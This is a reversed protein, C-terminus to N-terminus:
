DEVFILNFEFPKFDEFPGDEDFRRVFASAEDPLLADFSEGGDWFDGWWVVTEAVHPNRLGAEAMALALPGAHVSEREGNELHRKEVRVTVSQKVAHRRWLAEAIDIVSNRLLMFEEQTLTLTLSLSNDETHVSMGVNGSHVGEDITLNIRTASQSVPMSWNTM